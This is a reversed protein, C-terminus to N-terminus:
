FVRCHIVTRMRSGPIAQVGIKALGEGACERMGWARARRRLHAIDSDGTTVLEEQQQEVVAEEYQGEGGCAGM